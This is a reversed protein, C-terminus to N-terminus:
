TTSQLSELVNTNSPPDTSVTSHGLCFIDPSFTILKWDLPCFPLGDIKSVHLLFVGSVLYVRDLVADHIECRGHQVREREIVGLDM